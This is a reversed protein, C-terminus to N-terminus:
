IRNNESYSDVFFYCAFAFRSEHLGNYLVSEQRCLTKLKRPRARQDSNLLRSTMSTPKLGFVLSSSSLNLHSAITKLLKWCKYKSPEIRGIKM